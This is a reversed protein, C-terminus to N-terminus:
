VKPASEIPGILDDLEQDESKIEVNSSQPALSTDDDDKHLRRAEYSDQANNMVMDDVLGSDTFIGKLIGKDTSASLLKIGEDEGKKISNLSYDKDVPEPLTEMRYKAQDPPIESKIQSEMKVIQDLDDSNYNQNKMISKKSIVALANDLMNLKIQSKEKHQVIAKDAHLVKGLHHLVPADPAAVKAPKAVPAAGKLQKKLSELKKNLHDKKMQAAITNQKKGTPVKTKENLQAEQRYKKQETIFQLEKSKM